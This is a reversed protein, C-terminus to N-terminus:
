GITYSYLIYQVTVTCLLASLFRVLSSLFCEPWTAAAQKSEM